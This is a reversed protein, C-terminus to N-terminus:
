IHLAESRRAFAHDRLNQQADSTAFYDLLLRHVFIYGGGVKRLLVRETAYDLFRAYRLPAVRTWSLFQRLLMHQLWAFGGGWWAGALWGLIAAMVISILADPLLEDYFQFILNTATIISPITIVCFLAGLLGAHLANRASRQIAENPRVRTQEDLMTWSVGGAIGGLFGSFLGGFLAFYIPFSIEFLTEHHGTLFTFIAAILPGFLLGAILGQLFSKGVNKWSWVIAEVPTIELTEKGALAVVPITILTNITGFYLSTLLLGSVLNSPPNEGILLLYTEIGTGTLVGSIGGILIS